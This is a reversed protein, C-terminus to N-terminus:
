FPHEEKHLIKVMLDKDWEYTDPGMKTGDFENTIEMWDVPRKDFDDVWYLIITNKSLSERKVKFVADKVSLLVDGVDNTFDGTVSIVDDDDLYPLVAGYSFEEQNVVDEAWGFEDSENLKDFLDSSDDIGLDLKRTAKFVRIDGSQEVVKNYIKKALSDPIDLGNVEDTLKVRYSWAAGRRGSESERYIKYVKAVSFDGGILFGKNNKTIRDSKNQFDVRYVDGELAGNNTTSGWFDTIRGFTKYDIFQHQIDPREKNLKELIHSAIKEDPTKTRKFFDFIGEDIKKKKGKVPKPVYYKLDYYNPGVRYNNRFVVNGNKNVWDVHVWYQWFEEDTSDEIFRPEGDYEELDVVGYISGQAQNGFEWDKGPVVKDGQKVTRYDVVDPVNKIIEEAWGFEDSEKIKSKNFNTM